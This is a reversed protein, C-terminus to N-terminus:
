GKPRELLRFAPKRLPRWDVEDLFRAEATITKGPMVVIEKL